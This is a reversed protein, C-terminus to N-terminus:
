RKVLDCLHIARFDKNKRFNQCIWIKDLSWVLIQARRGLPFRQIRGVLILASTGFGFGVSKLLGPAVARVRVRSGTGCNALGM